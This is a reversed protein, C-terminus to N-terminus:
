RKAAGEIREFEVMADAMQFAWAAVENMTVPTSHQALFAQMALAAYRQRLTMTITPDQFTTM